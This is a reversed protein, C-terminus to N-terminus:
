LELKKKVKKLIYPINPLGRSYNLVFSVRNNNLNESKLPLGQQEKKKGIIPNYVSSGRIKRRNRKIIIKNKKESGMEAKNM